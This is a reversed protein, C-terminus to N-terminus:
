PDSGTSRPRLYLKWYASKNILSLDSRLASLLYGTRLLWHTGRTRLHLHALKVALQLQSLPQPSLHTQGWALLQEYMMLTLRGDPRERAALIRSQPHFRRVAVPRWSGAALRATAALRICFDTDQHLRLTENFLGSHALVDRRIALGNLHFHGYGGLVLAEFLREPGVPKTLMTVKRGKWYKQWRHETGQGEFESAVAEYVGGATSDSELRERTQAFRASLYYDDADLFALYPASSRTIGLNRAAGAGRNAGDLYQVVRVRGHLAAQAHAVELSSDSSGDDVVIVEVVEPQALASAIAQGVFSAANYVPLIVAVQFSM